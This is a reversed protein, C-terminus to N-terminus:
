GWAGAGGGYALLEAGYAPVPRRRVEILVEVPVHDSPFVM